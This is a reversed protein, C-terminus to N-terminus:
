EENEYSVNPGTNSLNSSGKIDSAASHKANDVASRGKDAAKLASSGPPRNKLKQDSDSGNSTREDRKLHKKENTM